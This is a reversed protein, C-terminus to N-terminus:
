QESSDTADSSHQQAEMLIQQQHANIRNMGLVLVVATMLLLLVAVIWVRKSETYKKENPNAYSIKRKKVNM